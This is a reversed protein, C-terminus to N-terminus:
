KKQLNQILKIVEENKSEKAASLVSNGQEDRANPDAGHDLLLKVMDINGSNAAYMLATTNFADKWDVEARHEILLKAIKVNQHQAAWILMSLEFFGSKKKLNPDAGQNLLVEVNVSDSKTVAQYLQEDKTQGFVLVTSFLLFLTIIIKM